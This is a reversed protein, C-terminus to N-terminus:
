SPGIQGQSRLILTVFERLDRLPGIGRRDLHFGRIGVALPGDRDCKPSDGVMVVRPAEEELKGPIVSLEHCAKMYQFPDPKTVGLEYSLAFATHKPMLAKVAPGYPAALNSCVAIAIGHGQLESIAELTEPYLAISDIERALAAEIEAMRAPSTWIGLTDAAERLSINAKMLHHLDSPLPRRGRMAGERLLQRYPHTRTGIRLTTGFADFIVATFAM